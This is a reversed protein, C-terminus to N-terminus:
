YIGPSAHSGYIKLDPYLNKACEPCIGHSFEAESREKIYVEIQEWYGQDNRINKCNACIPLLGSLRKVETLARRIEDILRQIKLHTRLRAKVIPLSFPKIIYDVAGLELGKTEDEEENKSTIFIVPIDKTREDAKLRRCVEYGSMGPMLIDLLILDPPSSQVRELASKGDLAFELKYENDLANYLFNIDAKIDDVLLVTSKLHEKM